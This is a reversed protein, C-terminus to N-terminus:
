LLILMSSFINQNVDIFLFFSLFIIFLHFRLVVFELFFTRLIIVKGSFMVISAEVTLQLVASPRGNRSRSSSSSSETGLLSSYGPPVLAPTLLTKSVYPSKEIDTKENEAKQFKTNIKIEKELDDDEEVDEEVEVENEVENGADFAGCLMAGHMGIM